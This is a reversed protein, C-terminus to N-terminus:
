VSAPYFALSFCSYAHFIYSIYKNYSTSFCKCNQYVAWEALWVASWSCFWYSFEADFLSSLSSLKRLYKECKLVVTSNNWFFFSQNFFGFITFWFRNKLINALKIYIKFPIHQIVYSRCILAIYLLPQFSISTFMKFCIIRLATVLIYLKLSKQIKM